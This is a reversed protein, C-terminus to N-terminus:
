VARSYEAARTVQEASPRVGTYMTFQEAAQLAIVKDGTITAVGIKEALRILPTRPPTAVVDFVTRCQSIASRNAEVTRGFPLKEADPGAMGQPTANLLLTPRRTGLASIWEYGHRKALDRGTHANRALVAVDQYGRERLAALAASAMGGSGAVVAPGDPEPLLKRVAIVDTNYGTLVSAGDDRLDNVITNVANIAVASEDLVDLMPICDQKFPMSIGAGRIGLARIGQVAGELDTTTFAKYAFNLGLEAYLFNHFRTGINSPRAALSICMTTDKDLNHMGSTHVAM